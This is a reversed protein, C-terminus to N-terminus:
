EPISMNNHVVISAFEIHHDSTAWYHLHFEHDIDRRWAKANDSNRYLQQENGGAGRRLWHTDRMNINLITESIASLLLM